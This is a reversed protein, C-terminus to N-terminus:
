SDERCGVDLLDHWFLALIMYDSCPKLCVFSMIVNYVLGLSEFNLKVKKQDWNFYILYFNWTNGTLEPYRWAM